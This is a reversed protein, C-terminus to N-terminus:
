ERHGADSLHACNRPNFGYPDTGFLMSWHASEPGEDHDVCAQEATTGAPDIRQEPDLIVIIGADRALSLAYDAVQWQSHAQVTVQQPAVITNCVKFAEVAAAYLDDQPPHGGVASLLLTPSGCVEYIHQRVQDPTSQEALLFNGPPRSRPPADGRKIFAFISAGVLTVAAVTTISIFLSKTRRTLPRWHSHHGPDPQQSM